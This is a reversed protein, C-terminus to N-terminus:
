EPIKGQLGRILSLSSRFTKQTYHLQYYYTGAPYDEGDWKFQRDKSEFLIKGWRNFVVINEFRDYCMDDPLGPIEFVDNHEDANPTFVNPLRIDSYTSVKEKFSVRLSVTDSKVNYCPSDKVSFYFVFSNEMGGNQFIDCDPFLSLTGNVTGNGEVDQWQYNLGTSDAYAISDLRLMLQDATNPDFGRLQFVMSTDISAEIDLTNLDLIEVLPRDNPPATLAINVTVTDANAMDCLDEDETIFFVTFLSKAALNVNECSTEWNFPSQFPGEGQQNLFEMGYDELSFGDGVARFDILDNDPDLGQVDFSISEGLTKYLNIVEANTNSLSTRTEPFQNRLGLSTDVIVRLTDTLPLACADDYAVVDFIYPGQDVPPCLPLCLDLLFSRNDKDVSGQSVSLYETTVKGSFNVPVIKFKLPEKGNQAAGDADVDDDSVKLVMCRENEFDTFDTDSLRIEDKYFVGDSPKQASLDPPFDSGQYEYVLMQFDRRVEGIKEGSRFEEAIVSFVFLGTESPTVQIFGNQNIRLSPDGPIMNNQSYASNWSVEEYPAPRGPNPVVNGPDPSSSGALPTVLSYVLSDGDADTGRFDFYFPYGLRAFDSLPPFLNPSSNIFPEGDKVVPPFELYFAQGTEGPFRINNLVGNRCCREYNIYYGEPSNFTSGDLVIEASYVIKSTKLYPIVCNPNSYPVPKHSVKPLTISRILSNNNKQWIHVVATPDIAAPDIINIDDSYLVLSLRYTNNQIHVLEFEGGVIHSARAQFTLALLCFILILYSYIKM